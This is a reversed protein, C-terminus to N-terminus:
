ALTSQGAGADNQRQLKRADILEALQGMAQAALSEFLAIYDRQYQAVLQVIEPIEWHTEAEGPMDGPRIAVGKKTPIGGPFAQWLYAPTDTRLFPQGYQQAVLSDHRLTFDIIEEFFADSDRFHSARIWCHYSNLQSLKRASRRSTRSPQLVICRGQGCDVVGGGGVPRYPQNTLLTLLKAGVIAYDACRGVPGAPLRARSAAAELTANIAKDILAQAPRPIPAPMLASGTM